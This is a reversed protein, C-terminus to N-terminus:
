DAARLAEVPTVAVARRAPPQAAVLVLLVGCLAVGALMPLPVGWVFGDNMSGILSQAGLSGYALGLALGFLVATGSLAASEITIMRRVQGGTFGLARLLGIERRRRIVTLSMTSVFGVASIISSIVVIAVLIATATSLTQEAEALQAADLNSWSHVADQLAQMGSAITTVLTVGIVLGMTSRTTRLPDSVANRRAILAASDRGLLRSVTAVLWPIVFRAGVLLGTGSGVAGAFALLIGSGNGKGGAAAAIALLAAGAGIMLLSVVVRFRSLRRGAAVRTEAGTLGAVPSVSLVSRSGVWGAAATAVVVMVLPGVIMVSTLPYTVDPLVGRAVLVVRFVTSVLVGLVVGALVGLSAVATTGRMVSRRLSGATAGLLRLLAIHRLRGAIVTDVCNAIVIASVYVAILIFLTSVTALLLGIGGGGPNAAALMSSLTVLVAAYAGCLGAVLAITGLERPPGLVLDRRM